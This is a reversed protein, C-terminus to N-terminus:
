EEDTSVSQPVAQLEKRVEMLLRGLWNKGVGGCVGWFRDNWSNGEILECDGTDRLLRALDSDTFKNRLLGRMVAVKVSEWDRRLKVKRDLRKAQGPSSCLQIERREAPDLTKAAQFAHELTVYVVGDLKVAAPYFNSLWAYPGNFSDIPEPSASM